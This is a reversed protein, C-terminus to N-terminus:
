KEAPSQPQGAAEKRRRHREECDALLKAPFIGAAVRSRLDAIAEEDGRNALMWTLKEAEMFGWDEPDCYEAEMRDEHDLTNLYEQHLGEPNQWVIDSFKWTSVADDLDGDEVKLEALRRTTPRSDGYAEAWVRLAGERDGSKALLEGLRGAANKDGAETRARLETIHNPYRHEM